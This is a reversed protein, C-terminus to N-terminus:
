GKTFSTDKFYDSLFEIKDNKFQFYTVGKNKYELGDISQGQNSWIAIVKNDESIIESVNFTLNRYKRLLANLFLIIRKHGEITKVGPFDFNANEHLMDKVSELNKANMAEFFSLSAKKYFDKNMKLVLIKQLYLSNDYQNKSCLVCYLLM